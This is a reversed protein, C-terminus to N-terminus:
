DGSFYSYPVLCYVRNSVEQFGLGLDRRLFVIIKWGDYCIFHGGLKKFVPFYRFLFSFSSILQAIGEIIISRCIIFIYNSGFWAFVLSISVPWLRQRALVQCLHRFAVSGYGHGTVQEFYCSGWYFKMSLLRLDDFFLASEVIHCWLLSYYQRRGASCSITPRGWHFSGISFSHHCRYQIVGIILGYWFFCTSTYASSVAIIACASINAMTQIWKPMNALTSVVKVSSKSINWRRLLFAYLFSFM